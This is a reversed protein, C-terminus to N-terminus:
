ERTDDAWNAAHAHAYEQEILLQDLALNITDRLQQLEYTKFHLGLDYRKFDEGTREAQENLKLQMQSVINWRPEKGGYKNDRQLVWFPRPAIDNKGFFYEVM